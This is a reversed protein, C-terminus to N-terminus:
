NESQKGDEPKMWHTSTTGGTRNKVWNILVSCSICRGPTSYIPHEQSIGPRSLCFSIVRNDNHSIRPRQSSLSQCSNLAYDMYTQPDSCLAHVEETYTKVSEGAEDGWLMSTDLLIHHWLWIDVVLCLQQTHQNMEDRALSEQWTQQVGDRKDKM